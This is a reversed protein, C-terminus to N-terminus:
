TRGVSSTNIIYLVDKIVKQAGNMLSSPLCKCKEITAKLYLNTTCEEFSEQNQCGRIRPNLGLYSITVSIEKVANLNYKGSGYLKLPESSYMYMNSM